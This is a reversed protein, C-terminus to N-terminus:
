LHDCISFDAGFFGRLQHARQFGDLLFNLDDRMIRNEARFAALVVRRPTELGFGRLEILPPFARLAERQNREPDSDDHGAQDRPPHKGDLLIM